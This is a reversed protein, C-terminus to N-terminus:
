SEDWPNWTLLDTIDRTPRGTMPDLAQCVEWLNQRPISWSGGDREPSGEMWLIDEDSWHGPNSEIPMDEWCASTGNEDVRKLRQIPHHPADDRLWPDADRQMQALAEERSDTWWTPADCVSTWGIYREHERDAKFIYTGM